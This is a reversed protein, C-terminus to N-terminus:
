RRVRRSKRRRTRRHAKRSGGKRWRQASSPRSPSPRLPHGLGSYPTGAPSSPRFVGPPQEPTPPRLAAAAARGREEQAARLANLRTQNVPTVPRPTMPTVPRPTSPRSSPPTVLKGSRANKLRKIREAAAEAKARAEASAKDANIRRRTQNALRMERVINKARNTNKNTKMFTPLGKDAPIWWGTEEQTIIVTYDVEIGLVGKVKITLKNAGGVLPISFGRDSKVPKWDNGYLYTLEFKKEAPATPRVIISETDKRVKVSYELTNRNFTMPIIQSNRLFLRLNELYVDEPKLIYITYSKVVPQMNKNQANNGANLRNRKILVVQLDMQNVGEILNLPISAGSETDIWGDNSEHLHYQLKMGPREEIKPIVYAVTEKKEAKARIITNQEKAVTELNYPTTKDGRLIKIDQISVNINPSTSVNIGKNTQITANVGPPLANTGTNLREIEPRINEPIELPHDTGTGSEATEVPANEFKDGPLNYNNEPPPPPPPVAVPEKYTHLMYVKDKSVSIWSLDGAIIGPPIMSLGVIEDKQGYWIRLGDQVMPGGPQLKMYVGCAIKTILTNDSAIEEATPFPKPYQFRKFSAAVINGPLSLIQNNGSNTDTISDQLLDFRMNEVGGLNTSIFIHGSSYIIVLRGDEIVTMDTIVSQGGNPNTFLPLLLEEKNGMQKTYYLTGDDLAIILKTMGGIDVFAFCTPISQPRDRPPIIVVPNGVNLHTQQNVEVLKIKHGRTCGHERCDEEKAIYFLSQELLIPKYLPMGITPLQTPFSNGTLDYFRLVRDKSATVLQNNSLPTISKIEAIQNTHLSIIKKFSTTGGKDSIEFIDLAAGHDNHKAIAYFNDKIYAICSIYFEGADELPFPGFEKWNSFWNVAAM